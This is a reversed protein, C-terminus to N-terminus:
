DLLAQALKVAYAPSLVDCSLYFNKVGYRRSLQALESAAREPPVERYTATATLGYYCFSCKGWYCGRTPAYLLTRSPALYRDLDLDSYDPPLADKALDLTHRPGRVP